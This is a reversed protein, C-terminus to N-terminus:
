CCSCRARRPAASATTPAAPVIYTLAASLAYVYLLGIVLLPRMGPATLAGDAAPRRVEGSGPASLRAFLAATSATM